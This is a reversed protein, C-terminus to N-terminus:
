PVDGVIHVAIQEVTQGEDLLQLPALDEAEPSQPSVQCILVVRRCAAALLKVTKGSAGVHHTVRGVHLYAHADLINQFEQADVVYPPQTVAVVWVNLFVAYPHRHNQRKLFIPLRNSLYLKYMQDKQMRM